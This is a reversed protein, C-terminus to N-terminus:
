GVDGAPPVFVVAGEELAGGAEDRFQAEGVVDRSLEKVSISETVELELQSPDMGSESLASRVVGLLNPQRLQLASLNDYLYLGMCPALAGGLSHGGVAITAGTIANQRIYTQLASILTTGGSNMALLVNMGNASATSIYGSNSGSGASITNWQVMTTIDFDEQEWDFMSSPNTGAIAIVFLNQSKSYYCAMTNDAVYDPGKQGPNVWVVPGWVPTWDSGILGQIVTDALNIDSINTVYNQMDSLSTFSLDAASNVSFTFAAVQQPITYM